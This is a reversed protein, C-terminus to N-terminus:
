HKKQENDTRAQPTPNNSGKKGVADKHLDNGIDKKSGPKNMGSQQNKPMNKNEKENKM